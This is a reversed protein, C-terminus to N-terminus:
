RGGFLWVTGTGLLWLWAGEMVCLLAVGSGTAITSSLTEPPEEGRRDEALAPTAVPDPDAFQRQEARREITEIEHM